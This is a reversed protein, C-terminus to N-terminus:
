SVPALSKLDRVQCGCPCLTNGHILAHMTHVIEIETSIHQEARIRDEPNKETSLLLCFFDRAHLHEQISDDIADRLEELTVPDSM